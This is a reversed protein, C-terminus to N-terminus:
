PGLAVVTVQRVDEGKLFLQCVGNSGRYAYGCGERVNLNPSTTRATIAVNPNIRPPPQPAPTITPIRAAAGLNPNPVRAFGQAHASFAAFCVLPSIMAVLAARRARRQGSAADVM